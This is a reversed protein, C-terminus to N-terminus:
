SSIGRKEYVIYFMCFNTSTFLTNTGTVYLNMSIDFRQVVMITTELFKCGKVEKWQWSEHHWNTEM